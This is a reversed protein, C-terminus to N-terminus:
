FLGLKGLNFLIHLKDYSLSHGQFNAKGAAELGAMIGFGLIILFCGLLGSMGVRSMKEKDLVEFFTIYLLTGGALGQLLGIVTAQTSSQGTVYETIIMGIVVGLPTVFALTFMYFIIQLRKTGMAIMETGICFLIACAHISVAAFLKWVDPVNEQLGIAMGEFVSHISLSLVILFNRVYSLIKKERDMGPALKKKQKVVPLGLHNPLSADLSDGDSYSTYSTLTASSVNYM